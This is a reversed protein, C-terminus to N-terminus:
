SKKCQTNWDDRWIWYAALDKVNSNKRKKNASELLIGKSKHSVALLLMLYMFYRVFHFSIPHLPSLKVSMASAIERHYVLILISIFPSLWITM